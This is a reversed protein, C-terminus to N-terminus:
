GRPAAPLSGHIRARAREIGALVADRREPHLMFEQFGKMAVNALDENADRDFYQALGDASALLERGKALFRDDAVAARSNAPLQLMARNLAEQVDARLVFALFRRADAKNRAGSPIHLTNLPAEEYRGLDSRLTPFDVLEMRPRVDPPFNPVIFNGILMMAAKGQYLLAQSEQWTAAAHHHSFCRADILERWLDFVKRVRADTYAVRGRMLDMHFALGNQRLDIYDFWAAAPWLERTGIAFPEIGAKRLKACAHVLDSWTAPPQAVGAAALVDRRVYLGVHYFTYPVGYRRGEASVLDLASKHFQNSVGPTYLDSVDDLLGPAVFQRMRNGAYWFVVDPPEGTLWNRIARKYSEADYVNLRVSVDTNEREFRAVLDQWAARPAPDVSNANIVLEAATADCGVLLAVVYLLLRTAPM